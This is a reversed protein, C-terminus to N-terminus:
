QTSGGTTSPASFLKLLELMGIHAALPLGDVTAERRRTLGDVAGAAVCADVMRQEEDASHLLPRGALRSLEAVVGWAGWNSTGAVVLHRVKVVSTIAPSVARTRLIRSRVNGMGIENGGDGIGVTVVRRPAALFLADLPPNWDKVSVGRANRYDGDKARGPREISVLHTPAEAALVRRAAASEPAGDFILVATPEGLADLTAELTPVTVADTIYTVKHGLLRLARGLVATGPPGDTEPQGPAVTFGTTLLTRKGKLLSRAAAEAGGPVFFRGIGRRGPDLALLQDIM